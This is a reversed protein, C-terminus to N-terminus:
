EIAHKSAAQFIHTLFTLFSLLGYFIHILIRGANKALIGALMVVCPGRSALPGHKSQNTFDEVPAGIQEDCLLIECFNLSTFGIQMYASDQGRIIVLEVDEVDTCGIHLCFQM